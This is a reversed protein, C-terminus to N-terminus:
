RCFANSAGIANTNGLQASIKWDACAKDLQKNQFYSNGRNSLANADQPNANIIVSYDEISGKFDKLFAKANGRNKLTEFDNPNNDIAQNYYNLAENYKKLNYYCLGINSLAENNKPETKIVTKFDNLALDYQNLKLHCTGRNIYLKPINNKLKEASNYDAVALQFQNTKFLSVGRNIYAEFNSPDLTIAKTYDNIASIQNDEQSYADGRINYPIPTEPYKNIIDTFLSVNNKWVKLRNFSIIAFVCTIIIILINKINISIILNDICLGLGYFLGLYPLYTYREAVVANGFPFIKLVLSISILFFLITFILEKRISKLKIFAIILIPIILISLYYVSPLLDNIKEPYYHFASQQIPLITKIFYFSISYTLLFIRDVFNFKTSLDDSLTNLDHLLFPIIAISISIILLSLVPIYKNLKFENEDKYWQILALIIPLTIAMPKALCSCIFLIITFLFHKNQKTDIYKLYTYIASLYFLSYLVDKRESIWAVSEVHMPHIAFM